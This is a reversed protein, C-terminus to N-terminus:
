PRELRIPTTSRALRFVVGDYQKVIRLSRALGILALLGVTVVVGVAVTMIHGGKRPILYPPSNSAGSACVPRGRVLGGFAKCELSPRALVL